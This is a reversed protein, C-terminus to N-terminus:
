ADRGGIDAEALSVLVAGKGDDGLRFSCGQGRYRKSNLLGGAPQRQSGLCHRIHMSYLPHLLELQHAVRGLRLQGATSPFQLPRVNVTALIRLRRFLKVLAVQVEASLRQLGDLPCEAAHTISDVCDKRRLPGLPREDCDPRRSVVAGRRVRRTEAPDVVDVDADHVGDQAVAQRVGGDDVEVQVM